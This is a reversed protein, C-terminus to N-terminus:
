TLPLSLTKLGLTTTPQQESLINRRRHLRRSQRLHVAMQARVDVCSAHYTWRDFSAAPRSYSCTSWALALSRSERETLCGEGMM